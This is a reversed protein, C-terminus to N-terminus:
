RRQLTAGSSAGTDQREVDRTQELYRAKVAEVAQTLNDFVKQKIAPDANTRLTDNAYAVLNGIENKAETQARKELVSLNVAGKKTGFGPFYSFWVDSPTLTVGTKLNTIGKGGEANPTYARRFRESEAGLGPFWPPVLEKAVAAARDTLQMGTADQRFERKTQLDKGTMQSMIINLAPTNEWSMIPNVAVAAQM